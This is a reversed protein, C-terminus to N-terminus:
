RRGQAEQEQLRPGGPILEHITVYGDDSQLQAGIGFLAAKMQIAFEATSAKGFYDSHPDFTECFTKLYIEFIEDPGLEAVNKKQRVYRKSLTTLIDDPKKKALLEQLYEFRLQQWWLKKAEDIDAPRPATKRDIQITDSSDFSFTRTKLADQVFDVQAALREKYRAAVTDAFSTDGTTKIQEAVTDRQPKWEDIDAKLFYLHQPDIEDLYRDFLRESIVKDLPHRVYNAQTLLRETIVAIKRNDM